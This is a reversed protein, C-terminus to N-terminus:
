YIADHMGWGSHADRTHRHLEAVVQERNRGHRADRGHQRDRDCGTVEVDYLGDDTLTAISWNGQADTTTSALVTTSGARRIKVSAGAIPRLVGDNGKQMAVDYFTSAKAISPLLCLTFFILGLWIRMMRM